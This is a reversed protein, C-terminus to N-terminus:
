HSMGRLEINVEVIEIKSKILRDGIRRYYEIARREELRSELFRPNEFLFTSDMPESVVPPFNNQANEIELKRVEEKLKRRNLRFNVVKEIIQVVGWIAGITAPVAAVVTILELPSKKSMSEVHLRDEERIKINLGNDGFYILQPFPFEDYNPDTAVRSIEYIMNFDHLFTYMDELLPFKEEEEGRLYIWFHPREPNFDRPM